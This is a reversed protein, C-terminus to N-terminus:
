SNKKHTNTQKNSNKFIIINCKQEKQGTIRHRGGIINVKNNSETKIKNIIYPQTAEPIFKETKLLVFNHM